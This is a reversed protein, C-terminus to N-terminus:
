ILEFIQIRNNHRDSVVIRGDSLNATSAPYNFEGKGSGKTGFETVFFGILEFVQVRHNESDCVMVHGDRNVSLYCPWDFEGEKNGGKGFKFEFNGELDFVKICHKIRDSVIFYRETQICHCPYSLSGQGGFKRKFQWCPSFIKILQNGRDAVIIDGNSAVSLGHPNQLQHDINGEDGFTTRFKCNGRFVQVRNNGSDAVLINGDNDFAIGTPCNFEGVNCGKRGFSGLHTGGSSFVSVRHNNLETVAIQNRNNVAVGCPGNLKGVSEGYEGFCLVPRFRRTQVQVEFSSSRVHKGEFRAIVKNNEKGEAGSQQRKIKNFVTKVSGIGETNLMSVLKINETFSFRPIREVDSKGQVGREQLITDFTENFGLIEASSSRRLLKQIEEIASEIIHLQNEAESKRLAVCELLEKAQKDVAGFIDRKRAEITAMMQDATAQVKSKLDAVQVRVQVQVDISNQNLESIENRMEEAKNNLSYILSEMQLRHENAGDELLMRAHGEHETLACANCIVIKCNKCFFELANNEHRKIQCFAPRKLVDEIDHDQFDKIALVRHEKNARILNHPSICEECWFAFCQFCYFSNASRKDCNGCKAGTTNCEKIALVDLLSTIRFNTPFASPNGSEPIKIEKRCEPCSIVDRRPSTRHIGNLCKLCFSHLCPLQKPETFPCKCVSCSVEDHLNHLLTKIDM